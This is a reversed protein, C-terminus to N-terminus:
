RRVVFLPAGLLETDITVGTGPGTPHAVRGDEGMRPVDAVLPETFESFVDVGRLREPRTTAALQLNQATVLAGGWTDDVTVLMDLAVAVDRMLKAKTLGGVRGPKINVGTMGAAHATTLDAVTFVCEDVAVPVGARRGVEACDALTRCPQELSVTSSPGLLRMFTLAESLNWGANADTWVEVEAPVAERIAQVRRADDYPDDGAKLQLARVGAEVHGLAQAVGSDPSGFGVVAFAPSDVAFQGGTLTHIPLDVAKGLVDWCAFDLVSKAAMGSLLVRDMRADVVAPTCPDCGIVAEALERVAALEGAFFSPLYDGGNPSTEAWGELGEDTRVRVVIARHGKAARGGSMTYTGFRYAAEYSFVSVESIRM